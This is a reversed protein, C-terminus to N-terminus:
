QSFTQCVKKEIADWLITEAKKIWRNEPNM